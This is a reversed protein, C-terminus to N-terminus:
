TTTKEASSLFNASKGARSQFKKKWIYYRLVIYVPAAIFGLAIGVVFFLFTLIKIFVKTLFSSGKPIYRRYPSFLHINAIVASTLFGVVPVFGLLFSLGAIKYFKKDQNKIFEKVTPSQFHANGCFHCNQFLRNSDLKNGCDACKRHSLLNLQHKEVNVILEEKKQGFIGIAYIQPQLKKCNVCKVAFPLNKEGCNFCKLKQEELKKDYRKRIFVFFAIATAYLIVMIIGTWILLLFGFVVLSDEIWSTIRGIFLNDDEDIDELFDLFDRRLTALWHVMLAGFALVVWLPDFAAWQVEQLVEVSTEDLLSLNIALFAIPKLYTEANKLLNRVDTNKDGIIELLSLSGLVILVWNRSIFAEESVAPVGELGPFYEPYTLLLATLFAPLFTRLSFLPISGIITVIQVISM